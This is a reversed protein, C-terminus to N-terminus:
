FYAVVLNAVCVFGVENRGFVGVGDEFGPNGGSPGIGTMASRWWIAWFSCATLAGLLM